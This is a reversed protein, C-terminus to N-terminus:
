APVAGGTPSPRPALAPPAGDPSIVRSGLLEHAVFERSPPLGLEELWGRAVGGGWGGPPGREPRRERLLPDGGGGGAGRVGRRLGGRPGGRHRPRRGGSEDSGRM